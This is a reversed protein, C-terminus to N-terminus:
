KGSGERCAEIGAAAGAKEYFAAKDEYSYWHVAQIRNLRLKMGAPLEDDRIYVLLLPKEMDRAFALEDKCNSSGFYNDSLFALMYACNEIHTAIYEDWETGPDIGEDFWIRYGRKRFGRIIEFATEMDRHSYSAFIYPMDGEYPYIRSRREKEERAEPMAAIVAGAITEASAEEAAFAMLATNAAKIIEVEGLVRSSPEAPELYVSIVSGKIAEEIQEDWERTYDMDRSILFCDIDNKELLAALGAAKEQDWKSYCIYIEAQTREM